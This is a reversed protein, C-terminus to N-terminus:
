DHSTPRPHHYLLLLFTFALILLHHHIEPRPPPLLDTILYYNFSLSSSCTFFFERSTLRPEAEREEGQEEGDSEGEEQEQEEHLAESWERGLLASYDRRFEENAAMGVLGLAAASDTATPPQGFALLLLVLQLM